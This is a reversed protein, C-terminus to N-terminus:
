FNFELSLVSGACSRPRYSLSYLCVSVPVSHCCFQVLTSAHGFRVEGDVMVAWKGPDIYGVVIPLMPVPDSLVLQLM